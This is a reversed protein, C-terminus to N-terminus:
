ILFLHVHSIATEFGFKPINVMFDHELHSFDFNTQNSLNEEISRVVSPYDTGNVIFCTNPIGYPISPCGSSSSGSSTKSPKSMFAFVPASVPAHYGHSFDHMPRAAVAISRYKLDETYDDGISFLEGDELDSYFDSM